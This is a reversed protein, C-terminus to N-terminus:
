GNDKKDNIIQSTLKFFQYFGIVAGVAIGVVIGWPTSGFILDFIWGVILMFVIAGFLTLAAAYALGSKRITEAATEPKYDNQLISPPLPEPLPEAKKESAAFVESGTEPLVNLPEVASVNECSYFRPIDLLEDPANPESDTAAIQPADSFNPQRANTEVFQRQPEASIKEDEGAIQRRLNEESEDEDFISKIM